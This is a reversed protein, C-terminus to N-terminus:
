LFLPIAPPSAGARSGPGAGSLSLLGACLHIGDSGGKVNQNDPVQRRYSFQITFIRLKGLFVRKTYALAQLPDSPFLHFGPLRHDRWVPGAGLM